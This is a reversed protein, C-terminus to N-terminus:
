CRMLILFAMQAGQKQNNPVRTLANIIMFCISLIADSVDSYVTM